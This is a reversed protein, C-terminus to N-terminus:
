RSGGYFIGEESRRERMAICGCARGMPEDGNTLKINAFALWEAPFSYREM